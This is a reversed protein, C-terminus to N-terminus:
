LFCYIVLLTFSSDFYGSISAESSGFNKMCGLLLNLICLSYFIINEEGMFGALQTSFECFKIKELVFFLM